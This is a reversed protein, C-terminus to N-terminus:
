GALKKLAERGEQMVQQALAMQHVFEPDSQVGSRLIQLAWEEVSVGRRGAEDQLRAELEPPLELTLTM